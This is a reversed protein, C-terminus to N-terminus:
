SIPPSILHERDWKALCCMKLLKAMYDSGLIISILKIEFDLIYILLLAM